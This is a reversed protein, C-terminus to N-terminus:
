HLSVTNFVYSCNLLLRFTCNTNNSVEESDKNEDNEKNEVVYNHGHKAPEADKEDVFVFDDDDEEDNNEDDKSTRAEASRCEARKAQAAAKASALMEAFSTGDAEYLEIFCDLATRNMFAASEDELSLMDDDGRRQQQQQQQQKHHRYSIKKLIRYVAKKTAGKLKREGLERGMARLEEVLLPFVPEVSAGLKREFATQKKYLTESFQEQYAKLVSIHNLAMPDNRHFNCLANWAGAVSSAGCCPSPQKVWGDFVRKDYGMSFAQCNGLLQGDPLIIRMIDTVEEADATDQEMPEVDSSFSSKTNRDSNRSFGEDIIRQVYPEVVSRMSLAQKSEM